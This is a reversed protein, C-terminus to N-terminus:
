EFITSFGEIFVIIEDPGYKIAHQYFDSTNTISNLISKDDLCQKDPDLIQISLQYVQKAQNFMLEIDVDNTLNINRQISWHKVNKADQYHVRCYISDLCLLLLLSILAIIFGHGVLAEM